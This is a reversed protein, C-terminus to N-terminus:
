KSVDATEVDDLSITEGKTRSALWVLGGPLSVGMSVLGVMLSLVLAGEAPVGALAFASVMAGERVGWGGISIPITTILLVPPVLALCDFMTVDLSLSMALLFVVFSINLQTVIGWLTVVVAPKPSLFVKRTDGALHGLGRFLKWQKFKPPLRDLFMLFCLGGIMVLTIIVMAPLIWAKTAADLQEMYLSQAVDVLLILGVMAAMRELMVGNIAGRLDLGDRYTLYMRVADGGVSSPLTQNFFMGIYFFKLSKFYSLPAGIANQIARWRFGGIVAQIGLFLAGAMLLPGDAEVLRTKATELDISGILFWILFGSVVFKLVIALWKKSM